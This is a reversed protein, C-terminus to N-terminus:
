EDELEVRPLNLGGGNNIIAVNLTRPAQERAARAKALGVVVRSMVAIGVPAEKANSLAYRALRQAQKLRETDHGYDDIMARSPENPLEPDIEAFRSVGEIVRLGNELIKDELERLEDEKQDVPTEMLNIPGTKQIPAASLITEVIGEVPDQPVPEGFADEDLAM